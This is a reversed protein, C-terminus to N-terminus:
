SARYIISFFGTYNQGLEVLKADFSTGGKIGMCVLTDKGPAVGLGTKDGAGQHGM